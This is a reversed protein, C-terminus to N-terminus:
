ESTATLSDFSVGEGVVDSFDFNLRKAITSFNVLSFIRMADTGGSTVELFRGNSAEFSAEGVLRRLDVAAPSGLWSLDAKITAQETTVSPAYGWLPLVKALDEAIMTGDFFSRNDAQRWLVRDASIAVGRLLADLSDLELGEEVPRLQFSWSGYDEDGVTFQDVTVNAAMLKPIIAVDLPDGGDDDTEPLRLLALDVELPQDGTLALTGVLDPSDVALELEPESGAGIRGSLDADKFIVGNVDIAGVELDALRIAIPLAPGGDGDPIVETVSFGNVRGGLVLENVGTDVIPPAAAFGIAGRLPVEDVHLWGRAHGYRFRVSQYEPLFRLELETPVADDPGKALEGPLSLELGTLDSVVDLRSISDGMEIHLDAMFDFGGRMVGPDAVDLLTLVQEYPAQGAVHFIVTDQDSSAGFIAPRDFIRGRVDAAAITYPYVYHFTGALDALNVGYSPLDLDAGALDIDLDVAVEDALSQEGIHEGELKLPIHLKGTMDVPGDGAWDPTVFSMWEALPTSRVFALAEGVTSRSELDIDAYTANDGLRIRSGSLDTSTLSRGADVDIRVERGAVAIRGSLDQVRPWDPHYLVDGETIRAGFDVRRSLEFPRTHIQGHYALSVGELRGATPGHELWEPLGAPLRYPIYRKGKAVTTEDVNVLLTLRERYPDNPRTLAFGGAARSGDIEARLNVGRLGFYDKGIYAKLNGSLHDMVWRQHFIDPFQIGIDNANLALQISRDAGLLEGAAGRIWPAGNYGDLSVDRVTASFGSMPKSGGSGAIRVFGHVNLARAQVRLASLWRYVATDRPALAALFAFGAGTEIAPTWAQLLGDAYTMWVDPLEFRDTGTALFAQKLQLHHVDGEGNALLSLGGQLRENEPVQLGGFSLDLKGGSSDGDRWWQGVASDILAAPQGLLPEPLRIGSASVSAAVTRQRVFPIAESEDLGIRIGCPPASCNANAAALRFVHRGGRNTARYNFDIDDM